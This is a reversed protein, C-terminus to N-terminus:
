RGRDGLGRTRRQNHAITLNLRFLGIDDHRKPAVAEHQACQMLGLGQSQRDIAHVAAGNAKQHIGIGFGVQLVPQSRGLGLDQVRQDHDRPIPSTLGIFLQGDVLDRQQTSTWLCGLQPDCNIPPQAHRLKDAIARQNGRGRSRGGIVIGRM